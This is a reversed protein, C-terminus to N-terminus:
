HREGGRERRSRRAREIEQEERHTAQAAGDTGLVDHRDARWPASRHGSERLQEPDRARLEWSGRADQTEGADRRIGRTADLDLDLLRQTQTLDREGRDM